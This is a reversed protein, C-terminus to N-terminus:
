KRNRWDEVSLPYIRHAGKAAIRSAAPTWFLLPVPAAKTDIGLRALLQTALGVQRMMHRVYCQVIVGRSVCAFGLLVQSGIAASEEPDWAIECRTDCHRLAQHFRVRLDQRRQGEYPWEGADQVIADFVFGQHAENDHDYAIVEVPM